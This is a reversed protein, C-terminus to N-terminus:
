KDLYQVAIPQCVQVFTQMWRKIMQIFVLSVLVMGFLGIWNIGMGNM